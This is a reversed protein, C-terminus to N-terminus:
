SGLHMSYVPPSAGQPGRLLSFGEFFHHDVRALRVRLAHHVGCLLGIATLPAGGEIVTDADDGRHLFAVRVRWAPLVLHLREAAAGPDPPQSGADQLLGLERQHALLAALFGPEDRPARLAFSWAIGRLLESPLEPALTPDTGCRPCRLPVRGIDVYIRGCCWCTHKPREMGDM